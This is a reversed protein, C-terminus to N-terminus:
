TELQDLPKLAYDEAFVYDPWSGSMEVRVEESIIKGDVALLYDDTPMNAMSTIGIGVQGNENPTMLVDGGSIQLFLPAENGNNRALIENGDMALNAGNTPGLVLQGGGSFNVDSGDTVHLKADPSTTGIGVEGDNNACLSLNGGWYQLYLLSAAGTSTKAAIENNDFALYSGTASGVKFWNGGDSSGIADDGQVQLHAEPTALGIGVNGGQTIVMNLEGASSFNDLADRFQLVGGDNVIQWDTGSFESGRILELGAASGGISTTHVRLFRDGTGEIELLRAPTTTGIGVNQATVSICATLCAIVILLQNTNHM